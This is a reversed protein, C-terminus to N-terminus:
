AANTLYYVTMALGAPGFCDSAARIASSQKAESVIVDRLASEAVIQLCCFTTPEAGPERPTQERNNNSQKGM